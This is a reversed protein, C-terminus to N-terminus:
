LLYDLRQNKGNNERRRNYYNKSDKLSTIGFKKALDLIEKVGALYLVKVAPLNISQALANRLNILGKFRENYNQPNYCKLKYKDEEDEATESCDPNFETKVDWILTNPTLGRNFM